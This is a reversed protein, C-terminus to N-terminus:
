NTLRRVTRRVRQWLTPKRVTEVIPTKLQQWAANFANVREMPVDSFDIKVWWDSAPDRPNKPYPNFAWRLGYAKVLEQLQHVKHAPCNM